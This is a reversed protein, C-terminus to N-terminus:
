AIHQSLPHVDVLPDGYRTAYVRVGIKYIYNGVWVATHQENKQGFFFFFKSWKTDWEVVSLMIFFFKLANRCVSLLTSWQHPWLGQHLSGFFAQACLSSIHLNIGFYAFYLTGNVIINSQEHSVRSIASWVSVCNTETFWIFYVRVLVRVQDRHAFFIHLFTSVSCCIFQLHLIDNRPCLLSFITAAQKREKSRLKM